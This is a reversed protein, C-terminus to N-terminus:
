HAVADSSTYFYKTGTEVRSYEGRTISYILYIPLTFVLWLTRLNNKPLFRFPKFQAADIRPYHKGAYHCDNGPWPMGNFLERNAFVDAHASGRHAREAFNMTLQIVVITRYAYLCLCRLLCTTQVARPVSMKVFISRWDQDQLSQSLHNVVLGM